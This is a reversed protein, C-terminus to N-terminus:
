WFVKFKARNEKIELSFFTIELFRISKVVLCRFIVRSKGTDFMIKLEFICNFNVFLESIM